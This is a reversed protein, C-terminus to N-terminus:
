IACMKITNKQNKYYFMHHDANNVNASAGVEYFKGCVKDNHM